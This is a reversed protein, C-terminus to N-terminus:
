QSVHQIEVREPRRTEYDVNHLVDAIQVLEGARGTFGPHYDKPTPYTFVLNGIRHKNYADLESGDTLSALSLGVACRHLSKRTYQINLAKDAVVQIECEAKSCRDPTRHTPSLHEGLHLQTTPYFGHQRPIRSPQCM